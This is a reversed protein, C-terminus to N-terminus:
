GIRYFILKFIKVERTIHHNSDIPLQRHAIINLLTTKGCGSPGMIALLEYPVAFGEINSLIIKKNSPDSVNSYDGSSAEPSVETQVKKIKSKTVISYNINSWELFIKEKKKKKIITDINADPNLLVQNKEQDINDM